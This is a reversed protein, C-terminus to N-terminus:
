FEDFHCGNGVNAAHPLEVLVADNGVEPDPGRDEGISHAAMTGTLDRAAQGGSDNLLAEPRLAASEPCGGVRVRTQPCDLLAYIAGILRDELRRLRLGSVMAHPRRQGDGQKEIFADRQPVHAVRSDIAESVADQLKEGAVIRQKAILDVEAEDGGRVGAAECLRLRTVRAMPM